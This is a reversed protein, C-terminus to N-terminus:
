ARDVRAGYCGYKATHIHLYAVEPNSFLNDILRELATGPAVDAGQMMGKTDFARVSLLRSRFPEPVEDIAPHAETASERVYIAHRSRYPSAVDLHEYNLLILREGVEADRLSVRCPYAPCKDAVARVADHRALEEDSMSFLPAFKSWPLGSIQFNM